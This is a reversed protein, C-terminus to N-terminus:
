KKDGVRISFSKILVVILVLIGFGLLIKTGEEIYYFIWRDTVRDEPKSGSKDNWQVIWGNLKAAKSFKVKSGSLPVPQAEIMEAKGKIVDSVDDSFLVDKLLEDSANEYDARILIRDGIWISPKGPLENLNLESFEASGGILLCKNGDEKKDDICAQLNDIIPRDGVMCLEENVVLQPVGRPTDYMEHYDEMVHANILNRYIEYEIVVLCGNYMPPLEGLIIPDAKACHPCGIGTFYILCSVEDGRANVFGALILLVTVGFFVRRM